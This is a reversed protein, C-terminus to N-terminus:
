QITIENKTSTTISWYGILIKTMSLLIFTVVHFACLFFKLIHFALVPQPNLNPCREFLIFPPHYTLLDKDCPIFYPNKPVDNMKLVIKHRKHKIGLMLTPITKVLFQDGVIIFDAIAQVTFTCVQQFNANIGM